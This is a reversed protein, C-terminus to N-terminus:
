VTVLLEKSVRKVMDPRYGTWHALIETGEMIVVLPATRVDLMKVLEEQEDSPYFNYEVNQDNFARKTADCQVCRRAKGTLPDTGPGIILVRMDSM